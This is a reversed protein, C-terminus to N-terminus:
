RTLSAVTAEDTIYGDTILRRWSCANSRRYGPAAVFAFVQENRREAGRENRRETGSGTRVTRCTGARRSLDGRISHYV